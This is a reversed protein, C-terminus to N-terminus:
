QEVQRLRSQESEVDRTPDRVDEPLFPTAGEDPVDKNKTGKHSRKGHHKAAFHTLVAMVDEALESPCGDCSPDEVVTLLSGSRRIIYEVLRYGIRALRDRYAVVVESVAGRMCRDLLTQLGRREFNVGSGIDSIVQYNPFRTRLSDIQRGLDARQKGSSVRAYIVGYRNPLLERGPLAYRYQGGSTRKHAIKGDRAWDRLTQTTVGLTRSAAGPSCWEADAM